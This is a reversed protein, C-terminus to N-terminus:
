GSAQETSPSFLNTDLPYFPSSFLLSRVLMYTGGYIASLRAFAQPLEGLGYLPYIYPSKSYKALSEAYLRMREILGFCEGAKDLYDDDLYLALSHGLFDITDAELGFDKSMLERPTKKNMDFKNHTKPDSKEFNQVFQLFKQCRRKEFLGM